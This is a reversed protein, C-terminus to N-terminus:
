NCGKQSGSRPSGRKSFITLEIAGLYDIRRTLVGYGRRPRTPERAGFYDCRYEISSARWPSDTRQRVPYQIPFDCVCRCGIGARSYKRVEINSTVRGALAGITLGADVKGSLPM